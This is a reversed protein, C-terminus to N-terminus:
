AKVAVWAAVWQDYPICSTSGDPCRALPTKWFKIADFYAGTADAHYGACSGAQLAEMEACAKTNVPTEGFFLAQQAQVKPTSVYAVWLYACNPHAAKAALMWSDGWATAGETPITDAVPAGAAKLQVTQYPSAVGVVVESNRFMSIEDSVLAWYRKVLARQQKLLSVAADFQKQNLEYPDKINLATQTKSLYLAADAIQMPNDPVTVLGKNAVDYIASWSTLPNVFKKTSFLLDNPGWQLSIGYHIGNVTNFAPSKFFGDFNNYDPILATNMPNVEGSYILQLGADGTASVLDWQGGGGDKMTTVIEDFSGVYKTTVKCGSAKTFPVTWSSDAYGDITILNLQGEGAGVSALPKVGATPPQPIAPGSTPPTSSCAALTVALLSLALVAAIASMRVGLRSDLPKDVKM